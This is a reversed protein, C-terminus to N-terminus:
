FSMQITNPIISFFSFFLIFKGRVQAAPPRSAREAPRGERKGAAPGVPGLGNKGM